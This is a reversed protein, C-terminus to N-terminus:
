SAAELVDGLDLVVDLALDFRRDPEDGAFRREAEKEVADLTRCVKDVDV